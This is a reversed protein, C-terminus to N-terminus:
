DYIEVAKVILRKVAGTTCTILTVEREGKTDQSLCEVEEPYVKCIEYVGYEIKNGNNDTLYIKDNIEVEKLDGFMNDKHYNHGTICLNGVGNVKPGCLKTVSKNLTEKNTEPLIYTVLNIKPVELKGIVMEGNVELLTDESSIEKETNVATAVTNNTTSSEIKINDVIVNNQYNDTKQANSNLILFLIFIITLFLIIMFKINNIVIIKSKM